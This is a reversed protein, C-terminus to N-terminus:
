AAYKVDLRAASPQLHRTIRRAQRHRRDPAMMGSIVFGHYAARVERGADSRGDM